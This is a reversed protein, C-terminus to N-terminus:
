EKPQFNSIVLFKKLTYGFDEDYLSNNKDHYSGEFEDNCSVEQTSIDKIESYAPYKSIANISIIVETNQDYKELKKILKHIKM